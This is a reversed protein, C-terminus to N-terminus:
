GPLVRLMAFKLYRGEPFSVPVPHDMAHGAEHVIQAQVGARSAAAGLMERFAAPDVQSTCSATALLGGPRVCRLAGANVREYARLAARRQDKSRALAPPDV